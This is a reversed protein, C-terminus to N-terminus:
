LDFQKEINIKFNLENDLFECIQDFEIPRNDGLMCVCIRGSDGFWDFAVWFSKDVFTSQFDFYKKISLFRKVQEPYNERAGKGEIETWNFCKKISLMLRLGQKRNNVEFEEDDSFIKM